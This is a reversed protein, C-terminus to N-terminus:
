KAKEASRLYRCLLIDLNESVKPTVIRFQEPKLEMPDAFLSEERQNHASDQSSTVNIDALSRKRINTSTMRPPIQKGSGFRNPTTAQGRGTTVDQRYPTGHPSCSSIVQSTNGRQNFASRLSDPTVTQPGGRNLSSSRDPSSEASSVDSVFNNMESLPPALIGPEDAAFANVASYVQLYNRPVSFLCNRLKALPYAAVLNQMACRHHLKCQNRHKAAPKAPLSVCSEAETIWVTQM